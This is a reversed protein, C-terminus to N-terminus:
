CNLFRDLKDSIQQFGAKIALVKKAIEGAEGGRAAMVETTAHMRALEDQSLEIAPPPLPTRTNSRPLM